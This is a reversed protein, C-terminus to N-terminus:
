KDDLIIMYHKNTNATFAFGDSLPEGGIDMCKRKFFNCGSITEVIWPNQMKVVVEVYEEEANPFSYFTAGMLEDRYENALGPNSVIQMRNAQEPSTLAYMFIGPVHEVMVGAMGPKPSDDEDVQVTPLVEGEPLSAGNQVNPTEGDQETTNQGGSDMTSSSPSSDGNDCGAVCLVLISVLLTLQRYYM